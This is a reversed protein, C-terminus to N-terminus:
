MLNLTIHSGSRRPPQMGRLPPPPRPGFPGPPGRSGFRPPPAMLFPQGFPGYLGPQVPPPAALAGQPGFPGPHAYMAQVCPPAEEAPRSGSVSRRGGRALRGPLGIRIRMGDDAAAQDDTAAGQDGTLALATKSLRPTGLAGPPSPPKAPGGMFRALQKRMKRQVSEWVAMEEKYKDYERYYQEWAARMVREGSTAAALLKSSARGAKTRKKIETTKKIGEQARPSSKQNTVLVEVSSSHSGSRVGDEIQVKLGQPPSPPGSPSASGGVSSQRSSHRSNSLRTSARSPSGSAPPSPSAAESSSPARARTERQRPSQPAVKKSKPRSRMECLRRERRKKKSGDGAKDGTYIHVTSSKRTARLPPGGESSRDKMRGVCVKCSGYEDEYHFETSDSREPFHACQGMVHAIAPYRYRGSRDVAARAEDDRYSYSGSTETCRAIVRIGPPADIHLEDDDELEEDLLIGAQAGYPLGRCRPVLRIVQQKHPNVGMEDLPTHGRCQSVVRVQADREGDLSGGSFSAGYPSSVAMRAMGPPFRHDEESGYYSSTNSPSRFRM